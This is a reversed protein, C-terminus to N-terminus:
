APLNLYHAIARGLLDGAGGAAVAGAPNIMWRGLWARVRSGPGHGDDIPDEADDRLAQRLEDLLEGGVGVSRAFEILEDPNTPMTATLHQYAQGSAIAVNTMGGTINTVITHVQSPDPQRAEPQGAEPDLAEFELALDLIRNRVTDVIGALMTPHFPRWAEQLYMDKYLQVEGSKILWNTEAIANGPWALRLMEEASSDALAELETVPQRFEANFLSGKRLREPYGAGPIPANRLGRGFMGTFTGRVEVQLPGRYAPLEVGSPYGDLEYHVWSALEGTGVRAALVKVKRLLTAVGVESGSASEIIDQLLTM